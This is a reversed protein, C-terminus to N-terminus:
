IGNREAEYLMKLKKLNAYYIKMGRRAKRYRYTYIFFSFLVYVIASILYWFVIQRVFQMVDMRYIQAMFNEFNYLIYMGFIVLFALTVSIASRIVQMSIYDDRFYQGVTENNKGKNQEFFALKTMLIVREENIM